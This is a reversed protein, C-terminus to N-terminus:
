NKYVRWREREREREVWVNYLCVSKKSGLKLGRKSDSFDKSEWDSVELTVWVRVRIVGFICFRRESRWSPVFCGLWLLLIFKPGEGCVFNVDCYMACKNISKPNAEKKSPKPHGSGRHRCSPPLGLSLTSKFCLPIPLTKSHHRNM